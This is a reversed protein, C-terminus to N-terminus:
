ILLLITDDLLGGISVSNTFQNLHTENFCISNSIRDAYFETVQSGFTHPTAIFYQAIVNFNVIMYGTMDQFVFTYMTSSLSYKSGM